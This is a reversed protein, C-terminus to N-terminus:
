RTHPFLTNLYAFFGVNKDEKRRRSTIYLGLSITQFYPVGNSAVVLRVAKLRYGLQPKRLHLTFALFETCLRRKVKNDGKGNSLRPVRPLHGNALFRVLYLTVM